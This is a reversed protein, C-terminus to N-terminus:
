KWLGLTYNMVCVRFDMSETSGYSVVWSGCGVVWLFLGNGMVWFGYGVNYVSVGGRVRAINATLNQQSHASEYSECFTAWAPDNVGGM